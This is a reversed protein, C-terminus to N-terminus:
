FLDQLEVWEQFTRKQPAGVGFGTAMSHFGVHLPCTPTSNTDTFSGASLWSSPGGILPGNEVGLVFPFQLRWWRVAVM